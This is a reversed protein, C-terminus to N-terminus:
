VFASLDVSFKSVSDSTNIATWGLNFTLIGYLTIICAIFFGSLPKSIRSLSHSFIVMGFANIPLYTMCVLNIEIAKM